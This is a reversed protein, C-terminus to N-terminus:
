RRPSGFARPGARARPRMRPARSARYPRHDDAAPSREVLGLEMLAAVLQSVAPWSVGARRALETTGLSERGIARLALYQGLSLPPRHGALLRGM